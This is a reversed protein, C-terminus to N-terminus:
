SSCIPEDGHHMIYFPREHIKKRNKRIKSEVALDYKRKRNYDDAAWEMKNFYIGPTSRMHGKKYPSTYFNPGEKMAVMGEANLKKKKYTINYDAM